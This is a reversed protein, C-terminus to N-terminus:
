SKKTKRSIRRKKIQKKKKTNKLAPRRIKAM